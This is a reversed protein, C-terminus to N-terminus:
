YFLFKSHSHSIFINKVDKLEINFAKLRKIIEVSGGTDILFSGLENQIVFCTNYLEITGGSGTGLMMLKEM